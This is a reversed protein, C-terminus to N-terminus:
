LVTGVKNSEGEEQGYGAVTVPGSFVLGHLDDYVEKIVVRPAYVVEGGEETAWGAFEYGVRAPVITGEESFKGSWWLDRYEWSIVYPYAGDYGIQCNRITGVSMGPYTTTYSTIWQDHTLVFETASISDPVTISISYCSSFAGGFSVVSRPITISTLCVCRAFARDGISTVSDPIFISTLKMCKEFASAGISTVSCPITISTLDQTYFAYEGIAKVGEPIVSTVCGLVLVNDEKRILCNGESRYVPNEEAVEIVELNPGEKPKTPGWRPDELFARGGFRAGCNGFFLKKLGKCFGFASDEITTVSDSFTIETIASRYFAAFEITTVGDPIIIETMASYLFAYRGIIKTSEPIANGDIGRVLADDERRMLCNGESRYVPNGEAVEIRKLNSCEEFVDGRFETLSAPLKIEFIGTRSFQSSELKRINESLRVRTLNRCGGFTGMEISTVTDPIYVATLNKCGYFASIREVPKENYYAPIVLKGVVAGKDEPASFSYASGKFWGFSGEAQVVYEIGESRESDSYKELDGVATVCITYTDPEIITEFLDFSAERSQFELDNAVIHYSSAHAVPDWSLIENEICLNKPTELQKIGGCSSIALAAAILFLVGLFCKCIRKMFCRM